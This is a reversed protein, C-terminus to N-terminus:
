EPGGPTCTPGSAAAPPEIVEWENAPRRVLRYEADPEDKRYSNLLHRAGWEDIGVMLTEIKHWSRVVPSRREIAYQNAFDPQRDM